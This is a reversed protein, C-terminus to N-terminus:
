FRFNRVSHVASLVAGKALEMTLHDKLFLKYDPICGGPILVRSDKPCAMIAAQIYITDDQIGDAKAGGFDRVDLTYDQAETCFVIESKEEGKQVAVCYEKEPELDYLVNM